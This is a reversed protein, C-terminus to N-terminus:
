LNKAPVRITSVTGRDSGPESAFAGQLNQVRSLINLMGMSGQKRVAEYDFSKGDDEVRMILNDGARYLQLGVQQAGAHKLINNFLEQAIRYLGIETKEDLRGSLGSHDFRTQIGVAELSNRILMNLSPILGQSALAPPMMMHSLNRVETCSQDLQGVLGRLSESENPATAGLRHEVAQLNLKLAVLEQAIGDHLDRAIRQREAEQAELVAQLGLKQERIVAADLIAKQKLRYRNYFLYGFALFAALGGILGLIATQQRYNQAQQLALEKETKETEYKVEFEATKETVDSSIFADNALAFQQEYFRAKEFNGRALYLGELYHCAMTLTEYNNAERAIKESELLRKEALDLQGREMEIRALGALASAEIQPEQVDKNLAQTLLYSDYCQDLQGTRYFVDSLNLQVIAEGVLYGQDRFAQAAIQLPEISEEFLGQDMYVLALNNYMRGKEFPRKWGQLYIGEQQYSAIAQDFQKLLRHITGQLDLSNLIVLTDGLELAKDLTQQTYALAQDYQYSQALHNSLYSLVELLLRDLGAGEAIERAQLMYPMSAAGDGFHQYGAIIHLLAEVQLSDNQHEQAIQLAQQATGLAKGQDNGLYETSLELLLLAKQLGEAQTVLQALSDTQSWVPVLHLCFLAAVLIPNKNPM